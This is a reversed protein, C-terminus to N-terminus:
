KAHFGASSGLAGRPRTKYRACGLQWNLSHSCQCQAAQATQVAQPQGLQGVGLDLGWVLDPDRHARGGDVVEIEKDQVSKGPDFSVKGCTTPVSAAPTTSWTPAPTVPSAGPSRTTTM